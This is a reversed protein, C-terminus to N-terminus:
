ETKTVVTSIEICLDEKKLAKHCWLAPEQEEPKFNNREM